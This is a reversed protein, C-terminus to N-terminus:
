YVFPILKKTRKAYDRFADGYRDELYADLAPIHYFVFGATMLLPLAFTWWVGTLLAWGTFAVSDGFYNIHTAYRFLGETYCQGKHAPDAKWWKRQLESYTNLYSGVLILILAVIGLWGFPMPTDRTVGAALLCFGPEAVLLFASLGLGESWTVKRQLLVFLTIGHRLWYVVVAAFMWRARLPETVSWSRGFLNGLATVGGGFVLYASLGVALAHLGWFAFKAGLTKGHSRDVGGRKSANSNPNSM